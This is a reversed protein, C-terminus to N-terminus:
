PKEPLKYGLKELSDKSIKFLETESIKEGDFSITLKGNEVSVEEVGDMHGIFRRLAMSCSECFEKKVPLALKGM